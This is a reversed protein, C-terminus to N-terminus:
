KEGYLVRKYNQTATLIHRILPHKNEQRVCSFVGYEPLAM